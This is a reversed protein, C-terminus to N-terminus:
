QSLIGSRLLECFSSGDESREIMVSIEDFDLGTLISLKQYFEGGNDYYEALLEPYKESCIFSLSANHM